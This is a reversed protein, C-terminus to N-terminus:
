ESQEETNVRHYHLTIHSTM